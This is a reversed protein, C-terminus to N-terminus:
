GVRRFRTARIWEAMIVGGQAREISRLMAEDAPMYDSAEAELFTQWLTVSDFHRLVEYEAQQERVFAGEDALEAFTLERRSKGIGSILAAKDASERLSQGLINAVNM